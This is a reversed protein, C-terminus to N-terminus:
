LKEELLVKTTLTVVKGGFDKAIQDAIGDPTIDEAEKYNLTLLVESNEKNTYIFAKGVKVCTKSSFELFEKEKSPKIDVNSKLTSAQVKKSEKNKQQHTKNTEEKVVYEFGIWDLYKTLVSKMNLYKTRLQTSSYERIFSDLKQETVEGELAQCVTRLSYMYAKQTAPKWDHSEIFQQIQEESITYKMEFVEGKIPLKKASDKIILKQIEDSSIYNRTLENENIWKGFANKSIGCAKQIDGIQYELSRLYLFHDPTFREFDLEPLQKSTGMTDAGILRGLAKVRDVIVIDNEWDERDTLVNIEKFISRKQRKTLKAM